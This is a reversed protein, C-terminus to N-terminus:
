LISDIDFLTRNRKEISDYSKSKSNNKSGVRTLNATPQSEKPLQQPPDIEDISTPLSSYDLIEPIPTSITQGCPEAYESDYALYRFSSDIPILFYLPPNNRNPYSIGYSCSSGVIIFSISIRDLVHPPLSIVPERLVQVQFILLFIAIMFILIAIQM